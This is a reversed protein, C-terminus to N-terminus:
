NSDYSLITKKGIGIAERSQRHIESVKRSHRTARQIQVISEFYRRYIFANTTKYQWTNGLIYNIYYLESLIFLSVLYFM